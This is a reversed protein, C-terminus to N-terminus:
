GTLRRIFALAGPAMGKMKPPESLPAVLMAAGPPLARKVRHYLRSRSLPSYALLLGPALAFVPDDLAKDPLETDALHILFFGRM